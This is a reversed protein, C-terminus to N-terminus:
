HRPDIDLITIIMSYLYEIFTYLRLNEIDKLRIRVDDILEKLAM